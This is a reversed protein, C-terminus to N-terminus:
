QWVLFQDGARGFRFKITAPGSKLAPRLLWQGARVVGPAVTAGTGWNGVVPQDNAAGFAFISDPKTGFQKNIGWVLSDDVVGLADDGDNDWDGVVPFGDVGFRVVKNTRGASATNRLLWIPLTCKADVCRVVGPTDDGDGDWDGVIPFDNPGGFTFTIDAPGKSNTNRLYWTSGRVIGATKVGDGNWDGMVPFDGTRGFVFTNSAGGTTMSSRLLWLGNRYIAPKPPLAAVPAAQATVSAPVVVASAAPAIATGGAAVCAAVVAHVARSM